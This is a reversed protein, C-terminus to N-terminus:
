IKEAKCAYKEFCITKGSFIEIPRHGSRKVKDPRKIILWKAASDLCLNIVDEQDTDAGVCYSIFQMQKSSLSKKKDQEVFMPDYYITRNQCNETTLFDKADVHFLSFGQEFLSGYNSDQKARELADWLLCYILPDRELAVIKHGFFLMNVADVGMGCSLDIVSKASKGLANKLPNSYPKTRGSRLLTFIKIFDIVVNNWNEAFEIELKDNKEILWFGSNPRAKLQKFTFRQLITSKTSGLIGQFIM